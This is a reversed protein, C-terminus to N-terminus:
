DVTLFSGFAGRNRNVWRTHWLRREMYAVVEHNKYCFRRGAASFISSVQSIRTLNDYTKNGTGVKFDFTTTTATSTYDVGFLLEGIDITFTGASNAGNLDNSTYITALRQGGSLYVEITHVAGDDLDTGGGTADNTGGDISFTIGSTAALTLNNASSSATIITLLGTAAAYDTSALLTTIDTNTISSTDYTVDLKTATDFGGTITGSVDQAAETSLDTARAFNDNLVLKVGLNSFNVTVSEGTVLNGTSATGGRATVVADIAAEIDITQRDGTNTNTLIMKQSTAAIYDYDIRFPDEDSVLTTDFSTDDFTVKIGPAAGGNVENTTASRSNSTYVASGGAILQTCDFETDDSIRTIENKLAQFEVDLVSRETSSFQGSSSQVALEKMRVLIDSITAMAGDAIQLMSGAQGANVSATKMAVVEARLRSGIALSAADDKASVVRSGSSLKTLSSSAAADSLTWNRHAVNAAFNSIVNLAM